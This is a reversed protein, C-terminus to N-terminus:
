PIMVKLLALLVYTDTVVNFSNKAGHFWGLPAFQSSAQVAILSYQVACHSEYWINHQSPKTLGVLRTCSSSATAKRGSSGATPILLM